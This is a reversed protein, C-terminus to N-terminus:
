GSVLFLLSVTFYVIEEFRATSVMFLYVSLKREEM